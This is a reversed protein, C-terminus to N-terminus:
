AFDLATFRSKKVGGSELKDDAALAREKAGCLLLQTNTAVIDVVRPLGPALPHESYSLTAFPLNASQISVARKNRSRNRIVIRYKRTKGLPVVGMDIAPSAFEVWRPQDSELTRVDHRMLVSLLDLPPAGASLGPGGAGGGGGPLRALCHLAHCQLSPRNPWARPLGEAAALLEGGTRAAALRAAM